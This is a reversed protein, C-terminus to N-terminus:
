TFNKCNSYPFAELVFNLHYFKQNLEIMVNILVLYNVRIYNTVM